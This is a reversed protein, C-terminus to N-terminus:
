YDLCLINIKLRETVAKFVFYLTPRKDERYRGAGGYINRCFAANHLLRRASQEFGVIISRQKQAVVHFIAQQCVANTPIYDLWRSFPALRVHRNAAAVVHHHTHHAHHEHAHHHAGM